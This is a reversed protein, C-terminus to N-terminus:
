HKSLLAVAVVICAALAAFVAIVVGFTRNSSFAWAPRYKEFTSRLMDLETSPEAPEQHILYRSNDGWPETIIFTRGNVDFEGFDDSRERRVVTSPFEQEIFRCVRDRGINKIEFSM